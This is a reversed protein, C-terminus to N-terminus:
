IATSRWKRPPEIEVSVNKNKLVLCKLNFKQEKENKEKFFIRSFYFFFFFWAREINTGPM